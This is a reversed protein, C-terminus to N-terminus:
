SGEFSRCLDKLKSLKSLIEGDIGEPFFLSMYQPNRISPWVAGDCQKFTKTSTIGEAQYISLSRAIKKNATEDSRLIKKVEARTSATQESFYFELWARETPSFEKIHEVERLDILSDIYDTTGDSSCTSQPVIKEYIRCSKVELFSGNDLYMAASLEKELEEELQSRDVPLESSQGVAFTIGGIAILLLVSTRAILTNLNSSESM